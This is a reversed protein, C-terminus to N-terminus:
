WEGGAPTKNRLIRRELVVERGTCRGLEEFDELEKAIGNMRVWAVSVWERVRPSDAAGCDDGGQYGIDRWLVKMVHDRRVKM